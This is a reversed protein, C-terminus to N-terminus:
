YSATCANERVKSTQYYLFLLFFFIIGVGGQIRQQVHTLHRSLPVCPCTLVVGHVVAHM